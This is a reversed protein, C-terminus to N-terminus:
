RQPASNAARVCFPERESHGPKPRPLNSRQLYYERLAIEGLLLVDFILSFSATIQVYSKMRDNTKLKLQLRMHLVILAVQM